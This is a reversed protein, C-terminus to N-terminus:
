FCIQIYEWV